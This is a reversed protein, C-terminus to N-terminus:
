KAEVDSCRETYNKRLKGWNVYEPHYNITNSNYKLFTECPTTNEFLTIHYGRWRILAHARPKEGVDSCTIISIISMIM